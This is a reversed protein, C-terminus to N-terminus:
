VDYPSCINGLYHGDVGLPLTGASFWQTPANVGLSERLRYLISFTQQAETKSSVLRMSPRSVAECIAKADVFDNKNSKVFASHRYANRAGRKFEPM